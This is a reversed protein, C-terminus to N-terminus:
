ADLLKWANSRMASAIKQERDRTVGEPLKCDQTHTAWHTLCNYLAWKNKGLQQVEIALQDILRTAQKKNFADDEVKSKKAVVQTKFFHAAQELDIPTNRYQNWLDKQNLFIDLGRAVRDAENNVNLHATHRAWVRAITDPTTCGNTCWLRLGDTQSQYAWSGDYSNFATARFKVYDGVEPEIIVDNFIVDVKLKRGEDLCTVNFDFDQSINAKRIADFQANIVDDNKLLTYSDNHVHLLKGNDKRFLGKSGTPGDYGEFYAPREEIEFCAEEIASQYEPKLNSVFDLM